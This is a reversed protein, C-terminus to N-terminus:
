KKGKAKIAKNLADRLKKMKVLSNISGLYEGSESEFRFYTWRDIPLHWDIRTRQDTKIGKIKL